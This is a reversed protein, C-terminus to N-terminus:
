RRIHHAVIQVSSVREVRRRDDNMIRGVINLENRLRLRMDIGFWHGGRGGCTGSVPDPEGVGSRRVIRRRRRAAKVGSLGVSQYLALRTDCGEAVLSILWRGARGQDRTVTDFHVRSPGKGCRPLGAAVDGFHKLRKLVAAVINAPLGLRWWRLGM